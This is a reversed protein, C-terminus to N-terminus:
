TVVADEVRNGLDFIMISRGELLRPSYGRFEYWLKRACRDGIGSMGLYNRTEARRSREAAEYMDAVIRDQPLLVM